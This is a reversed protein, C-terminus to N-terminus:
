GGKPPDVARQEGNALCVLITMVEDQTMDYLAAKAAVRYATEVVNGEADKVPEVGAEVEPPVEVYGQGILYDAFELLTQWDQAEIRDRFSNAAELRKLFGREHRGPLRVTIEAM